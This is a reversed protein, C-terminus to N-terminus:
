VFNCAVKKNENAEINKIPKIVGSQCPRSTEFEASLNALTENKSNSKIM